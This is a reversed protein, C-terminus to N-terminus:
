DIGSRQPITVGGLNVKCRVFYLDQGENSFNQVNLARDYSRVPMLHWKIPM